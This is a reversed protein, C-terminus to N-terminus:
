LGQIPTNKAKKMSTKISNVTRVNKIKKKQITSNRQSKDKALFTSSSQSDLGSNRGPNPTEQFDLRGPAAPQLFEIIREIRHNDEKRKTIKV